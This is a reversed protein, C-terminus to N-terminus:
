LINQGWGDKINEAEFYGRNLNTLSAPLSKKVKSYQNIAELMAAVKGVTTRMADNEEPVSSTPQPQLVSEPLPSPIPSSEKRNKKILDLALILLIIVILSGGVIWVKKSLLTSSSESTPSSTEPEQVGKLAEKLERLIKEEEEKSSALTKDSAEPIETASAPAKGLRTGCKTCFLSEDSQEAGCQFCQM